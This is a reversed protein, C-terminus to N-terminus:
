EVVFINNTLPALLLVPVLSCLNFKCVSGSVVLSGDEMVSTYHLLWFDRAPALTTPAYLKFIAFIGFNM